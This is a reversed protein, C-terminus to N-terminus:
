RDRGARVSAEYEALWRDFEEYPFGVGDGLPVEDRGARYIARVEETSPTYGSTTM